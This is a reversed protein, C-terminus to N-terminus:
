RYTVELHSSYIVLGVFLAAFILFCILFLRM